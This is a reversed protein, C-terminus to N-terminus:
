SAVGNQEGGGVQCGCELMDCPRAIAVHLQGGDFAHALVEIRLSPWCVDFFYPSQEILIRKLGRRDLRCSGVAFAEPADKRCGALETYRDDVDTRAALGAVFFRRLLRDGM